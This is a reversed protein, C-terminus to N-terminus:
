RFLDDEAAADPRFDRASLLECHDILMFCTLKQLEKSPLSLAGMAYISLDMLSPHCHCVQGYVNTVWGLVGYVVLNGIAVVFFMLSYFDGEDVMDRDLM